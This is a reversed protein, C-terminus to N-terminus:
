HTELPNGGCCSCIKKRNISNYKYQQTKQENIFLVVTDNCIKGKCNHIIDYNNIFYKCKAFQT